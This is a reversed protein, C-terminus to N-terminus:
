AALLNKNLQVVLEKSIAGTRMLKDLIASLEGDLGSNGAAKSAVLLQLREVLQDPNNYYQVAGGRILQHKKSKRGHVPLGALEVLKKFTEVADPTYKNSKVFPKTLLDYLSSDAPAELMLNSGDFARLRGAQLTVPDVVLNGFQNGLLKLPAGIGTGTKKTLNSGDALLHLRERYAVLALIEATLASARKQDGDKKKAKKKAQGM